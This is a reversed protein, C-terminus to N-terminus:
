HKAAKANANPLLEKVANSYGIRATQLAAVLASMRAIESDVYQISALQVKADDSLTEIDYEHGDINITTM